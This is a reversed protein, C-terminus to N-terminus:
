KKKNIIVPYIKMPENFCNVGGGSYVPKGDVVLQYKLLPLPLFCSLGYKDHSYKFIFRDLKCLWGISHPRNLRLGHKDIVIILRKSIKM